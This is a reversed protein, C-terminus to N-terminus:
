ARRSHPSRRPRIARHRCRDRRPACRWRDPGLHGLHRLADRRRGPPRRRLARFYLQQFGGRLYGLQQTRDHVRAWFWPMAIEPAAEGFKGRLLPEWVTAYSRRGDLPAALLRRHPGRAPAPGADGQSRGPGRGDPASRGRPAALLAPALGSLRAPPAPRRAADRHAAHSWELRDGLGLEEIMRSRGATRASSTTTSSRSGCGRSSRSAPPWAVRCRSASSSPSRDRAAGPPPRRDPGPRRRRPGRHDDYSPTNSRHGCCGVSGSISSIDTVIYDAFGATEARFPGAGTGRGDPWRASGARASLAGLGEPAIASSSRNITTAPTASIPARSGRGGCHPRIAWPCRTPRAVDAECGDASPWCRAGSARPSRTPGLDSASPSAIGARDPTM